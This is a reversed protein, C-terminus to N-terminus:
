RRSSIYIKQIREFKEDLITNGIENWANIVIENNRATLEYWHCDSDDPYDDKDTIIYLDGCQIDFCPNTMELCQANVTTRCILVDGISYVM